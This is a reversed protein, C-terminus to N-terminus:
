DKNSKITQDEWFRFKKNEREQIELEYFTKEIGTSPSLAPWKEITMDGDLLYFIPVDYISLQELIDPHQGVWVFDWKYKRNKSYFSDFDDKNPDINISIFRVKSNYRKYLEKM